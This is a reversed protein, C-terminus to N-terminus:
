NISDEASNDVLLEAQRRSADIYTRVIDDSTQPGISIGNKESFERISIIAYRSFHAHVEQEPTPVRNKKGKNAAEQAPTPVKDASRFGNQEFHKKAWLLKFPTYANKFLRIGYGTFHHIDAGGFKTVEIIQTTIMAPIFRYFPNDKPIFIPKDDEALREFLKIFDYFEGDDPLSALIACFVKLLEPSNREAKGELEANPVVRHDYDGLEPHYM